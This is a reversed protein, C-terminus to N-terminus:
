KISNLIDKDNKFMKTLYSLAEERSVFDINIFKRRGLMDQLMIMYKNKDNDSTEILLKM